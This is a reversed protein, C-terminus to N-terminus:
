REHEGQDSAAQPVLPRVSRSGVGPAVAGGRFPADVVVAVVAPAAISM